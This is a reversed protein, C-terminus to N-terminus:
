SDCVGSQVSLLRSALPPIKIRRWTIKKEREIVFINVICKIIASMIKVTVPSTEELKLQVSSSCVNQDKDHSLTSLTSQLWLLPPTAPIQKVQLM